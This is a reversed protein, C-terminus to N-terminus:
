EFPDFGEETWTAIRKPHCVKRMLEERLTEMIQCQDEMRQQLLSNELDKMAKILERAEELVQVPGSAYKHEQSWLPTGLDADRFHQHDWGYELRHPDGYTLEVVDNLMENLDELQPHDQIWSTLHPYQLSNPISVYGNFCMAGFGMICIYRIRLYFGDQTRLCLTTDNCEEEVPIEGDQLEVNWYEDEKVVCQHRMHQLCTNWRGM